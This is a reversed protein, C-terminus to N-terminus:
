FTIMPKGEWVETAFLLYTLHSGEQLIVKSEEAASAVFLMNSAKPVLLEAKTEVTENMGTELNHLLITNM